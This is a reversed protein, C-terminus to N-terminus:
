VQGHVQDVSRVDEAFQSPKPTTPAAQTTSPGQRAPIQAIVGEVGIREGLRSLLENYRARIVAAKNSKISGSAAASARRRRGDIGDTARSIEAAGVVVGHM